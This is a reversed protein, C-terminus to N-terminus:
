RSHFRPRTTSASACAPSSAGTSSASRRGRRLGGGRPTGHGGRCARRARLRSRPAARADCRASRDSGPGPATARRRSRPPRPSRRPARLGCRLGSSMWTVAVSAPRSTSTRPEPGSDGVRVVALQRPTASCCPQRPQRAVALHDRLARRRRERDAARAHRQRGAREQLRGGGAFRRQRPQHRLMDAVRLVIASRNQPTPGNASRSASRARTVAASLSLRRSRPAALARGVLM